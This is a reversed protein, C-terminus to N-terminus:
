QAVAKLVDLVNRGTWLRSAMFRTSKELNDTVHWLWALLLLGLEGDEADARLSEVVLDGFSRSETERRVALRFLLVDLETPGDPVAGAWDVIGTVRRGDRAFLVNGPHFDRHV